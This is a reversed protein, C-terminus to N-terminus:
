PRGMKTAPRPQAQAGNWTTRRGNWAYGLKSTTASSNMTVSFWQPSLSTRPNDDTLAVPPPRSSRSLVFCLPPTHTPTCIAVCTPPQRSARAGEENGAGQVPTRRRQHPVHQETSTNQKTLPHIVVMEDLLQLGDDVVDAKATPCHPQQHRAEIRGGEDLRRIIPGGKHPPGYALNHQGLDKLTTLIGDKVEVQSAVYTFMCVSPTHYSARSTM